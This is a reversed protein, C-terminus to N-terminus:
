SEPFNEEATGIKVRMPVFNLYLNDFKNMKNEGGINVAALM